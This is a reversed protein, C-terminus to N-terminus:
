TTKALYYHCHVTGTVIYWHVRRMIIKTRGVNEIYALM